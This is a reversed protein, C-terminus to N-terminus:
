KLLPFKVMLSYGCLLAALSFQVRIKWIKAVLSRYASSVESLKPTLIESQFLYNVAKGIQMGSTLVSFVM